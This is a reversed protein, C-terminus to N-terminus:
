VKTVEEFSIFRRRNNGYAFINYKKYIFFVFGILKLYLDMSFFKDLKERSYRIIKSNMEIVKVAIKQGNKLYITDQVVANFNSKSSCFSDNIIIFFLFFSLFFPNKM